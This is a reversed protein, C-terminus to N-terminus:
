HAYAYTGYAEKSGDCFIILSPQGTCDISKICRPFSISGVHSVENFFTRWEEYRDPPIHDDWKLDKCENIWLKKMLIKARITFPALLGM